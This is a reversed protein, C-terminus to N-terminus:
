QLIGTSTLFHGATRRTCPALRDMRAQVPRQSEFVKRRVEPTPSPLTEGEDATPDDASDLVGTLSHRAETM